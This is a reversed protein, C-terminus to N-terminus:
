SGPSEAAPVVRTTVIADPHSPIAVTVSAADIGAPLVIGLTYGHGLAAGISAVAKAFVGSKDKDNVTPVIFAEGGTTDAFSNIAKADLHEISDGGITLPGTTSPQQYRPSDPDGIGILFMQAGSAKSQAIVQSETAGSHNDMGDTIVVIVRNPYHASKHQYDIATAISDYLATEGNAHLFTLKQAAFQHDTTFPQLLYPRDSFAFVAVEDCRYLKALFDGLAKEVVPLKPQMSGSTDIVLAISEPAAGNDARFFATPYVRANSYAEFNGRKLGKIPQHSADSANVSFLTFGPQSVLDHPVNAAAACLGQPAATTPAPFVLSPSSGPAAQTGACAACALAAAISILRWSAPLRVQASRESIVNLPVCYWMRVPSRYAECVRFFPIGRAAAVRPFSLPKIRVRYCHKSQM